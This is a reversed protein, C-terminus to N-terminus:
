IILTYKRKKITSKPLATLNYLLKPKGIISIRFKHSQYCISVWRLFFPFINEFEKAKSSHLAQLILRREIRHYPKIILTLQGSHKEVKHKKKKKIQHISVM